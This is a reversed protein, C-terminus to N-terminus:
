RALKGLRELMVGLTLVCWDAEVNQTDDGYQFVQQIADQAIRLHRKSRELERAVRMEYEERNRQVTIM